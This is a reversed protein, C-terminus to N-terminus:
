EIRYLSIDQKNDAYGVFECGNSAVINSSWVGSSFSNLWEVFPRKEEQDLEDSSTDPDLKIGRFIGGTSSLRKGRTNEWAVWVDDASLESFKFLYKSVEAISGLTGGVQQSHVIYSIGNTYKYLKKGIYSIWLSGWYAGKDGFPCEVRKNKMLHAYEPKSVVLFHYHPHWGNPGKTIECHGIWGALTGWPSTEPNWKRRTANKKGEMLAAYFGRLEELAASLSHNNKVTITILHLDSDELGLYEIKELLSAFVKRSRRMACVPCLKYDNCSFARTVRNIPEKKRWQPYHRFQYWSFCDSINNARKKHSIPAVSVINEKYAHLVEITKKLKNDLTQPKNKGNTRSFVLGKKKDISM